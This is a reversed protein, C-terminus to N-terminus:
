LRGDIKDVIDRITQLSKLDDDEFHLGTREELRVAMDIADISDLDLDDVLHTDLKLEESTFDFEQQLVESVMAIIEDRSLM